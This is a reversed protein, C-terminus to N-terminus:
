KRDAYYIEIPPQARLLMARIPLEYEPGAERAHLLVQKKAAGVIHLYTNSARLLAALTITMRAHASSAPALAACMLHSRAGFGREFSDRGPFVSATHGDEGMGLVVVDIGQASWAQLRADVEAQAADATPAATKLGVFAAEAARGQLLSRRVLAENSDAHDVAVWREDVLTIAVDSWPIDFGSLARFFLEPTSGGSVALTAGGKRAVAAALDHAVREALAQSAQANREFEHLQTM